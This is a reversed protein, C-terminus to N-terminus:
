SPLTLALTRDGGTSIHTEVVEELLQQRLVRVGEWTEQPGTYQQLPWSDFAARASGVNPAVEDTISTRTTAVPAPIELMVGDLMEVM